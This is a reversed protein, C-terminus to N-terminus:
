MFKEKVTDLIDPRNTAGFIVVKERGEIGDMENLLQCLVKDSVSFIIQYNYVSDSGRSVAMADIEDFFIISPSSIKAKRTVIIKFIKSLFIELQKKQIELM